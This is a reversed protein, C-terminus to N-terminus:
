AYGMVGDQGRPGGLYEERGQRGRRLWRVRAMLEPGIHSDLQM